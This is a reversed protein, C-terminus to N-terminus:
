QDSAADCARCLNAGARRNLCGDIICVETLSLEAATQDSTPRDRFQRRRLTERSETM